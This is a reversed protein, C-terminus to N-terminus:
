STGLLHKSFCHIFDLWELSLHSAADALFYNKLHVLRQFLRVMGQKVM